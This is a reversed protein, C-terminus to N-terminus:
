IENQPSADGDARARKRLNAFKAFYGATIVKVHIRYLILAIGAEIGKGTAMDFGGLCRM